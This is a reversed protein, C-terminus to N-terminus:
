EYNHNGSHESVQYLCVFLCVLPSSPVVSAPAPPPHAQPPPCTFPVLAFSSPDVHAAPSPAVAPPAKTLHVPRATFVPRVIPPPPLSPRGAKGLQGPAPFMAGSHLCVNSTKAQVIKAKFGTWVSFDGDVYM